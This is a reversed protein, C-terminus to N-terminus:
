QPLLEAYFFLPDPFGLSTMLERFIMGTRLAINYFEWFLDEHRSQDQM